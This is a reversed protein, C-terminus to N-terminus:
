RKVSKAKTSAAERAEAKAQAVKDADAAAARAEAFLKTLGSASAGRWGREEIKEAATGQQYRPRSDDLLLELLGAIALLCSPKAQARELELEIRLAKTEEEAAEKPASTNPQQSDHEYVAAIFLGPLAGHLDGSVDQTLVFAVLQKPTCPFPLASINNARMERQADARSEGPKSAQAEDIQDTSWGPFASDKNPYAGDKNPHFRVGDEKVLYENYRGIPIGTIELWDDIGLSKQRALEAARKDDM